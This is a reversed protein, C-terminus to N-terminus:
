FSEDYMRDFKKVSVTSPLPIELLMKSSALTTMAAKPSRILKGIGM